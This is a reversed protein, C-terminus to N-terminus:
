ITITRKRRESYGDDDDLETGLPKGAAALIDFENVEVVEDGFAALM